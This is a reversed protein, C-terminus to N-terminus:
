DQAVFFVTNPKVMVLQHSESAYEGHFLSAPLEGVGQQLMFLM